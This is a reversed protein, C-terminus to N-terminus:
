PPAGRRPRPGAPARPEGPLRLALCGGLSAGAIVVPDQGAWVRVLDAAFADLQPLVAVKALPTAEGFGPLDVAIAARGRLALEGLLPRWTDASDSWGHLLVIGPGDGDVELARTIYGALEVRHEFISAM